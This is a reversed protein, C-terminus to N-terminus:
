DGNQLFMAYFSLYHSAPVVKAAIDRSNALTSADDIRITQTADNARTEVEGSHGASKMWIVMDNYVQAANSDKV